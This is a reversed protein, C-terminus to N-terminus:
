PKGPVIAMAKRCTEEHRGARRSWDRCVVPTIVQLRVQKKTNEQPAGWIGRPVTGNLGGIGGVGGEQEKM